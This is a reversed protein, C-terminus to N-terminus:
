EIPSFNDDFVADFTMSERLFPRVLVICGSGRSGVFGSGVDLLETVEVDLHVFGDSGGVAPGVEVESVAEVLGLLAGPERDAFRSATFDEGPEQLEVVLPVGLLDGLPEM